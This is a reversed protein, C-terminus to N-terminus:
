EIKNIEHELASGRTEDEILAEIKGRSFGDRAECLCGFLTPTSDASISPVEGILQDINLSEGKLHESVLNILKDWCLDPLKYLTKSTMKPNSIGNHARQKFALDYVIKFYRKISKNFEVSIEPVGILSVM